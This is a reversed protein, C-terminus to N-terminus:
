IEALLRKMEEIPFSGAQDNLCNASAAALAQRFAEQPSIGNAICSTYVASATDGCGLPSVLQPVCPIRFETTEGDKLLFAEDAGNTIAFIKDPWLTAARKLATTGENEGTLKELEQLNIKVTINGQFRLAEQIGKVADIVVPVGTAVARQVAKTYLGLDSRDPLSGTIAFAAAQPLAKELEELFRQEEAATIPSSPEILETMSHTSDDICTICRRTNAETKITIHQFGLTDLGTCIKQGNEGGAFQFLLTDAMGFCHVARCFNIGKGSPYEALSLARNVEDPVFRAFHLTSQWAPNAGLVLIRPKSM